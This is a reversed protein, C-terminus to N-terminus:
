GLHWPDPVCTFFFTVTLPPRSYSMKFAIDPVTHTVTLDLKHHLV